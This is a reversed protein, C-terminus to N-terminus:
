VTILNHNRDFVEVTTLGPIRVPVGKKGFAVFWDKQKIYVLPNGSGMVWAHKAEKSTGPINDYEHYEVAPAFYLKLYYGDNGTYSMADNRNKSIYVGVGYLDRDGPMLGNVVANRVNDINPTGHYGIVPRVIYHRTSIETNSVSPAIRQYVPPNPPLDDCVDLEPIGRGNIIAPMDFDTNTQQSQQQNLQAAKFAQLKKAFLIAVPIILFGAVPIPLGMLIGEGVLGSVLGLFLFLGFSKMHKSRFIKEVIVFLDQLFTSNTFYIFLLFGSISTVVLLLMSNQEIYRLNHSGVTWSVWAMGLLGLLGIIQRFKQM